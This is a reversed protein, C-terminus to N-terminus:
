PTPTATAESTPSATATRRPTSLPPVETEAPSAVASTATPTPGSSATPATDPTVTSPPPITGGGPTSLTPTVLSTIVVEVTEPLIGEARINEPGIVNPEIVYNGAQLGNIDLSAYIDDPGLSNMLTLPGSMIVDVTEPSFDAKLNEGLGRVIPRLTVTRSDEIPVIEANVAVSNGESANVGEPLLLQLRAQVNGTAGELSLSETEVSGPVQDLAAADGYLVVTSPDPTVRVLRYGFAPQGTLKVRVAVSRRGPWREVPISIDVAAPEARVNAVTQNSRNLLSVTQLREVQATAGRLYVPAEASVVQNVQQAPGVVTLTSPSVTPTDWAYGYEASDMVAVRVPVTKTMVDDLQIRLFRRDMATVAIDSNATDVNIPVEHPGKAYDTLDVYVVLTQPDISDWTQQPARLSLTVSEKSIDQVPMLAADLGRVEIPLADPYERTVLPNVQDIAILWVILGMIGSLVMTGLYNVLRGWTTRLKVKM